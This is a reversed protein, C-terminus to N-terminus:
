EEWGRERDGKETHLCHFSTRVAEDEDNNEEDPGKDEEDEENDEEDEEKDEDNEEVKQFCNNWALNGLKKEWGEGDFFLLKFATEM